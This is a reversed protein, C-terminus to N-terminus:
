KKRLEPNILRRADDLLMAVDGARHGFLADQFDLVGVNRISNQMGNIPAIYILNDLHYDKHVFVNKGITPVRALAQTLLAIFESQTEESMPEGTAYQWYWKCFLNVERIKVDDTYSGFEISQHSSQSANQVHILTDIITKYAEIEDAGNDLLKNFSLDGFDEMLIFGNEENYAYISPVSIGINKLYSSVNLFPKISTYSPPCDMFIVQSIRINAINSTDFSGHSEVRYYKRLSADQLTEKLNYGQPLNQALFEHAIKDLKM